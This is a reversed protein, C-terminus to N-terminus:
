RKEMEVLMELYTKSINLHSYEKEMIKKNEDLKNNEPRDNLCYLIKEALRKEDDAPGYYECRGKTVEINVPIDSLLVPVKLMMAEVATMGFGEFNTPNIYLSAHCLLAYKDKDEVFGTFIIDDELQHVKVYEKLYSVRKPVTGVLILKHPIKSKILEFAKILTIINKHHFQLNVALLYQEAIGVLRNQYEPVEVPNYIRQVKHFYQPYFQRLEEKDCDSIAIIKDAHRFDMHYVLKYYFYKYFPVIDKGLRRHAVHKIDHPILVTNTKFHFLGNNISLHFLVGISYQKLLRPITISNDFYLGIIRKLEGGTHPKLVLFEASPIISKLLEESHQYCIILIEDTFGSQSIGKLLNIGVQDKGGAHKKSLYIYNFAIM